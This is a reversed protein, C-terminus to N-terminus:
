MAIEKLPCSSGLRKNIIIIIIIIIIIVIIVIIVIFVIIVIIVIIIIIIIFMKIACIGYSYSWIRTVFIICQDRIQM